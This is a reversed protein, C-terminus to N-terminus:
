IKELTKTADNEAHKNKKVGLAAKACLAGAILLTAGFEPIVSPKVLTVMVPVFKVPTVPTLNPAVGANNKVNSLAVEIVAIEGGPLTPTTSTVTVVGTPVLAKM